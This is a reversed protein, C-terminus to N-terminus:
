IVVVNIQIVIYPNYKSWGEIYMEGPALATITGWQSIKVGASEDKQCPIKWVYDFMSITPSKDYSMKFVYSDNVGITVDYTYIKFEESIDPKILLDKHFIIETNEDNYKYTATITVWTPVSVSLATVTGYSSVIAVDEDSSTWNYDLRSLSLIDDGQLYLIRTFGQTIEYGGYEGNNLTVETGCGMNENPDTVINSETVKVFECEQCYYRNDTEILTHEIVDYENTWGHSTTTEFDEYANYKRLAISIPKNINDIFDFIISYTIDNNSMNEIKVYFVNDDNNFNFSIEETMNNIIKINLQPVYVSNNLNKMMENINYNIKNDNSNESESNTENELEKIKNEIEEKITESCYGKLTFILDISSYSPLLLNEIISSDDVYYFDGDELIERTNYYNILGFGSEKEYSKDYKCLKTSGAALVSILNEVNLCYDEYELYILSVIGTVIATAFSTGTSNKEQENYYIANSGIDSINVGPAVILPKVYLESYNSDADKSMNCDIAGVTIINKAYGPSTVSNQADNGVSKIFILDKNEAYYDFVADLKKYMDTNKHNYGWSVNVIKVKERVFWELMCIISEGFNDLNIKGSYINVMDVNKTIEAILCCVASTHNKYSLEQNFTKTEIKLRDSIDKFYQLEKDVAYNELIGINIENFCEKDVDEYGIDNLVKSWEYDSLNNTENESAEIECFVEFIYIQEVLLSNKLTIIRSNLDDILKEIGIITYSAFPSYEAYYIRMDSFQSKFSNMDDVNTFRILVNINTDIDIKNAFEEYSSCEDFVIKNDIVDTSTNANVKISFTFVNLLIVAVFLFIFISKVYIKKM